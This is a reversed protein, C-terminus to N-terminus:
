GSIITIKETNTLIESRLLDELPPALEGDITGGQSDDTGYQEAKEKIKKILREITATDNKELAPILQSLFYTQDKDKNIDQRYKIFILIFIAVLIIIVGYM